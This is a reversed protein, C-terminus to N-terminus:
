KTPMPNQCFYDDKLNQKGNINWIRLSGDKSATIIQESNPAFCLWTVASQVFLLLLIM